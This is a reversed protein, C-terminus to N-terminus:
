NKTSERKLMEDTPELRPPVSTANATPTSAQPTANLRTAGGNYRLFDANPPTPPTSMAM